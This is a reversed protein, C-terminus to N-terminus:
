TTSPQFLYPHHQQLSCYQDAGLILHDLVPIGLLSGAAALQQTMTLDDRSPEPDGSPHNHLLIVAAANSLIAARYIERPHVVTADITGRSIVHYAIPQQKTNLCLVAFIECPEEDWPVGTTPQLARAYQYVAPPGTLRPAQGANPHRTTRYRIILERALM